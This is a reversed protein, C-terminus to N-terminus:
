SRPVPRRPISMNRTQTGNNTGDVTGAPTTVSPSTEGSATVVERPRVWGLPTEGPLEFTQRQVRELNKEWAETDNEKGQPLEYRQVGQDGVAEAIRSINHPQNSSNTSLESLHRQATGDIESPHTQSSLNSIMTDRNQKEDRAPSDTDLKTGNSDTSRRKRLRRLWLLLATLISGLAILVGLAIGAISGGALKRPASSTEGAKSISYISQIGDSPTVADAVVFTSNEFNAIIYAQQLFARGLVNVTGSSSAVQRIPFYPVPNDYIPWSAYLDFASYPFIIEKRLQLNKTDAVIISITLGQNSLRQTENLTYLTTNTDLTLGLQLAFNDCVSQPLYLYPLTSDIIANFTTSASNATTSSVHSDQYKISIDQVSVVLEQDGGGGAVTSMSFDYVSNQMRFVDYGGLVLSGVSQDTVNTTL